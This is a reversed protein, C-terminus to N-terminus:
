NCGNKNQAGTHSRRDVRLNSKEEGRQFEAATKSEWQHEHSQERNVSVARSNVGAWIELVPKQM